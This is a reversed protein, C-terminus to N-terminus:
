RKYFYILYRHKNMKVYEIAMTYSMEMRSCSNMTDWISLRRYTFDGKDNKGVVAVINTNFLMEVISIPDGDVNINILQVTIVM